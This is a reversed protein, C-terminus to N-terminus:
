HNRSSYLHFQNSFVGSIKFSAPICIFICLYTLPRSIGLFCLRRGTASNSGPVKRNAEPIRGAIGSVIQGPPPPGAFHILSYLPFSLFVLSYGPIGLFVLFVLSCWPISLFVLFVLSYRPLGLFVLFILSHRPICPISLFVM